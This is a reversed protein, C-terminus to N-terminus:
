KPYPRACNRRRKPSGPAKNTVAEPLNMAAVRKRREQCLRQAVASDRFPVFPRPQQGGHGNPITGIGPSLGKVKARDFLLDSLTPVPHAGSCFFQCPLAEPLM